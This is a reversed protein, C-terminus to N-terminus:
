DFYYIRLCLTAPEGEADSENSQTAGYGPKTRGPNAVEGFAFRRDSALGGPAPAPREDPRGARGSLSSRAVPAKAM